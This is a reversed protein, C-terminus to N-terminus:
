EDLAVKVTKLNWIRSAYESIARDSSFKGMRATNLIAMRAWKAPDRYAADVRAQANAADLTQPDDVSGDHRREHGAIGVCGRDHDPLFAGVHDELVRSSTSLSPV